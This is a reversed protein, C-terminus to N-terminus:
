DTDTAALVTLTRRDARLAAIGLDWAVDYYWSSKASFTFWACTEATAAVEDFTADPAAGALAGLSRWAELRGYAAGIGNNYAGGTAAASFLLELIEQTNARKLAIQEPTAGELCALHLLGLLSPSIESPSVVRNATLFHVESRGNSEEEWNNVADRMRAAEGDSVDNGLWTILSDGSSAGTNAAVTEASIFPTAWSRCQRDHAYYPLLDRLQVESPLLNLPLWSLPNGSGQIYTNWFMLAPTNAIDIKNIVLEQVLRALLDHFRADASHLDILEMIVSNSQFEVLEPIVEFRRYQKRASNNMQERLWSIEVATSAWHLGPTRVATSEIQDLISQRVFDSVGPTQMSITLAIAIQRVTERRGDNIWAKIQEAQTQASKAGILSDLFQKKLSNAKVTAEFTSM